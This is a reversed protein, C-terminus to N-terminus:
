SRSSPSTHSLKRLLSRLSNSASTATRLPSTSPHRYCTVRNSYFMVDVPKCKIVVDYHKVAGFLDGKKFKESGKNKKVIDKCFNLYEPILEECNDVIFVRHVYPEM